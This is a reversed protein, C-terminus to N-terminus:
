ALAGDAAVLGWRGCRFGSSLTAIRVV